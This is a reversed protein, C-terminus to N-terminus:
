LLKMKKFCKTGVVHICIIQKTKISNISNMPTVNALLVMCTELTSSLLTDDVYQMMCEGGLTLRKEDGNGEKAWKCKWRGGGM